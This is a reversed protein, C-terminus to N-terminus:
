LGVHVQDTGSGTSTPIHKIRPIFLPIITVKDYMITLSLCCGLQRHIHQLLIKCFFMKAFALLSLLPFIIWLTHLRESFLNQLGKYSNPISLLASFLKICNYVDKSSSKGKIGLIMKTGQRWHSVTFSLSWCPSLACAKHVAFESLREEHVIQADM